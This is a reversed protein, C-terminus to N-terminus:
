FSKNSKVKSRNFMRSVQGCQNYCCRVLLPLFSLALKSRNYIGGETLQLGNDALKMKKKEEGEFFYNFFNIM